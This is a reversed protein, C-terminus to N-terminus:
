TTGPDADASPPAEDAPRSTDPTVVASASSASTPAPASPSASASASPRPSASPSPSPSPRRTPTPSPTPSSECDCPSPSPSRRPGPTVIRRAPVDEVADTPSPTANAQRWPVPEPSAPPAPVRPLAGPARDEGVLADVGAVAAYYGGVGVSALVLVGTALVVRHRARPPPAPGDGVVPMVVTDDNMRRRALDYRLSRRAGAVEHRIMQWPNM